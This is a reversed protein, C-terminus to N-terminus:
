HSLPGLAIISIDCERWLKSKESQSKKGRNTFPLSFVFQPRRLPPLLYTTTNLNKDAKIGTCPLHNIDTLAVSSMWWYLNRM